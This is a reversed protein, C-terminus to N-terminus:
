NEPRLISPYFGTQIFNNSYKVEFYDYEKLLPKDIGIKYGEVLFVEYNAEINEDFEMQLGALWGFGGHYIKIYKDKLNTNELKEKAIENIIVEM